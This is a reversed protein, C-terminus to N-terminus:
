SSVIDDEIRMLDTNDFELTTQRTLDYVARYFGREDYDLTCIIDDTLYDLTGTRFKRM